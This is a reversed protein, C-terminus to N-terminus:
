FSTRSSMAATLAIALPDCTLAILGRIARESNTDGLLEAMYRIVAGRNRGASRDQVAAQGHPELPRPVAPVVRRDAFWKGRM